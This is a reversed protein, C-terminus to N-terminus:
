TAARGKAWGNRLFVAAGILALGGGIMLVWFVPSGPGAEQPVPVPAIVASGPTGDSGLVLTLWNRPVGYYQQSDYDVLADSGPVYLLRTDRGEPYTFTIWVADPPLDGAATTPVGAAPPFSRPNVGELSTWFKGQEAASLERAGAAIGLSAGTAVDARLLDLISPEGSILRKEGLRIYRDIIARQRLDLVLWADKGGQSARVFGGAPYYAAQDSAPPRDKGNGPLVRPWYPSKVSYAPGALVPPADDLKPPLTIRQFLAVEDGATLRLPTTLSGGSITTESGAATAASAAAMAVICIVTLILARM